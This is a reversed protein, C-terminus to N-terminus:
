RLGLFLYIKRAGSFILASFIQFVSYILFFAAYGIGIGIVGYILGEVTFPIGMQFNTFTTSAIEWNFDRVFIFPKATSSATILNQLAVSLGEYREVTWNMLDGQRAFDADGSTVFKQILEPLTTQGLLAAKTLSNVQLKLEAVRGSLQHAYQQMFMPVQACILAGVVAFIRDLLGTFWDLM